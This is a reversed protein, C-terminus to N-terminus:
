KHIKKSFLCSISHARLAASMIHTLLVELWGTEYTILLFIILTSYYRWIEVSRTVRIFRKKKYSIRKKERVLRHWIRNTYFAHLGKGNELAWLKKMWVQQFLTFYPIAYHTNYDGYNQARTGTIVLNSSGSLYVFLCVSLYCMRGCLMSLCHRFTSTCLINALACLFALQNRYSTYFPIMMNRFHVGKSFIQGCPNHSLINLCKFGQCGLRLLAEHRSQKLLFFIM